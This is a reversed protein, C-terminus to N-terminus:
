EEASPEEIRPDDWSGKLTYAISSFKKIPKKLLEQMAFVAAGVLPGGLVTSAIAVGSGVKPTITVREDYDRAALGIRGNMRIQSSPTEIRVDDSYANGDEINFAARVSDFALGEDVVDRFDLRLRRPLVYLNVLGLVRAAGPEVATFTGDDLAIQVSGDLARLDLGDPNPAINLRAHLRATGAQVSPAYGLSRLLGSLGSGEFRTQASARTLGNEHMWRGTAWGALAGDALQFRDLQWGGPQASAQVEAQGFDIDDVRVTGVFIDLHPLEAPDVDKWIVPDDDVPAPGPGQDRTHIALRALNGAININGGAPQTWTVQGQSDPGEFDIRWGPQASMPQARLHADRFYRNDLNLEGVRLDGGVFELPPEPSEGAAQAAANVQERVVTFWGVGDGSPVRGGIWIGDADPPQVNADNFLAQIRRVRGDNLRVDVNLREDYDVDVRSADGAVTIALPAARDAPKHLPDPLDLAMGRLDSRLDIASVQGDRSVEFAARLNTAGAGYDLWSDPLYHALAARDNPLQLRARSVIRQRDGAAPVLDTNLAVGLLNGELGTARLGADDFHLAGTINTIPGPLANQRLTAGRARVDGAVKLDGLGPKLPIRLDLDLDAPGSIDLAEVVKAFRDRLPSEVLFALMKEARANTAKGDIHLVPERVDAVRGTAPGLTVGLMRAQAVDVRLDDGDLTLKGRADELAPWEPKYVVNVGHGSLELHFREGERPEAFPFRDMAGTIQLRAEDLAGATIAKPLWDRLRENPLDKAQPIRALLRAADPASASAQIDVYPAGTKPLRIRGSTQVRAEGSALRLQRADIQLAGDDDHQWALEGDLDDLALPGRLYRRAELTGGAEDFKLLHTDGQQYYSGALPGVSAEPDAISLGAFDFGIRPPTDAGVALTLNDVQAQVDTRELRAFRLRALRLAIPVPLHRADIRLGPEDLDVAGTLSFPDLGEIDGALDAVVFSFDDATADADAPPPIDAAKLTTSLAPLVPEDQASDNLAALDINARARTLRRNEWRGEIETSLEGGSLRDTLDQGLLNATRAVALTQVGDLSLEFDASDLQPLEGSFRGEGSAKEFWDPGDADFHWAYGGAARALSADLTDIHARGDPLADDLLTINAHTVKVSRLMALTDNVTAWDLPPDDPRSWHVVKPRGDDGQRLAIKPTDIILGDPLRGGHMLDDFSFHLGLSDLRVAPEEFGHRTIRVEALELLPGRWQWRLEIAGIDIDADIRRGIRDALAERYRPMLHDILRVGGVLLGALIVVSALAIVLTRKILAPRPM